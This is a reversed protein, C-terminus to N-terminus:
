VIILVFFEEITGITVVQAWITQPAHQNTYPDIMELVAIKIGFPIAMKMAM